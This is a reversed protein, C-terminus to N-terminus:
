CMRSIYACGMCWNQYFGCGLIHIISVRPLFMSRGGGGGGGHVVDILQKQLQDKSESVGAFDDAFLLRGDSSIIILGM